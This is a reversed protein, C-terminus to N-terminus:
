HRLFRLPRGGRSCLCHECSKVLPLLLPPSPPHSASAPPPVLESARAAFTHAQAPARANPPDPAPKFPSTSWFRM